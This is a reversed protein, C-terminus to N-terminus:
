IINKDISPSMHGAVWSPSFEYESFYHEIRFQEIHM